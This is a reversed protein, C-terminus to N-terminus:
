RVIFVMHFNEGEPHMYIVVLSKTALDNSPNYSKISMNSFALELEFLEILFLPLSKFKVDCMLM